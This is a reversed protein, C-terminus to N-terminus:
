ALATTSVFSVIAAIARVWAAYARPQAMTLTRRADLRVGSTARVLLIVKQAALTPMDPM